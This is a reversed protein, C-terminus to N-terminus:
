IFASTVMSQLLAISFAACGVLLDQRDTDKATAGHNHFYQQLRLLVGAAAGYFCILAPHSLISQAVIGIIAELASGFLIVCWLFSLAIWLLLCHKARHVNAHIFGSCIVITMSAAHIIYCVIQAAEFTGMALHIGDTLSTVTMMFFLAILMWIRKRNSKDINHQQIQLPAWDEGNVNAVIIPNDICTDSNLILKSTADEGDDNDHPGIMNKNETWCRGVLEAIIMLWYGVAAAIGVYNTTWNIHGLLLGLLNGSIMQYFLHARSRQTSAHDLRRKALLYIAVSLLPALLFSSCSLVVVLAVNTM